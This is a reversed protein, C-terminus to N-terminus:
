SNRPTLSPTMPIIEVQKLRNKAMVTGNAPYKASLIDRLLSIMNLMASKEVAVMSVPKAPVTNMIIRSLLTAVPIPSAM